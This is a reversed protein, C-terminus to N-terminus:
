SDLRGHMRKMFTDATEPRISFIESGDVQVSVAESCKGLCFASKLEIQNGLNNMEIYSQCNKIVDYSGKLHCASGICIKIEM